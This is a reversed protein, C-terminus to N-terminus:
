CSRKKQPLRTITLKTGFNTAMAVLTPLPSCLMPYHSGSFLPIPAFLSCNNKM